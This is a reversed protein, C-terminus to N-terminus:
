YISVQWSLVEDTVDWDFDITYYMQEFKTELNFRESGDSNNAHLVLTIESPHDFMYEIAKKVKGGLDDYVDFQTVRGNVVSCRHISFSLDGLEEPLGRVEIHFNCTRTVGPNNKKFEVLSFGKGDSTPTPVAETM